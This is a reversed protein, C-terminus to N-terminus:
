VIEYMNAVIKQMLLVDKTTVEGDQDCDCLYLRSTDLQMNAIYKQVQLIDDVDVKSNANVDGILYVAVGSDSASVASAAADIDILGNQYAEVLSYYQDAKGVYLGLKSSFQADEKYDPRYFVYKGIQETVEMPLQIDSLYYYLEYDGLTCIVVKQPVSRNQPVDASVTVVGLMFLMILAMLFALIKKM